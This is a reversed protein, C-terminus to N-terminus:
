IQSPTTLIKAHKRITLNTKGGHNENYKKSIHMCTMIDHLFLSLTDHSRLFRMRKSPYNDFFRFDGAKLRGTEFKFLKALFSKWWFNSLSIIMCYWFDWVSGNKRNQSIWSYIVSGGLLPSNSVTDTSDVAIYKIYSTFVVSQVFHFCINTM